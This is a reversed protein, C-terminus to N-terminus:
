LMAYWSLMPRKPMSNEYTQYAMILSDLQVGCDLILPEKQGLEVLHGSIAKDAGIKPDLTKPHRMKTKM